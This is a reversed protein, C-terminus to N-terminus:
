SHGQHYEEEMYTLVSPLGSYECVSDVKRKELELKVEESFYVGDTEMDALPRYLISEKMINLNQTM